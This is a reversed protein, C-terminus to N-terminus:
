LSEDSEYERLAGRVAEYSFGKRLIFAMLKQMEEYPRKERNPWKKRLLRLIATREPDDTDIKEVVTDIISESIGKRQLEMRILRMSKRDLYSHVYQEAYRVDDILRHERCLDITKEIIEEPFEKRRMGDRLELTTKDTSMLIRNVYAKAEKYVVEQLIEERIDQAIEENEHLQYHLLEGKHLVFAFQGDISVRYKTKTVPEISTIIGM